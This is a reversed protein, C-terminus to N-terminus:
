ELVATSTVVADIIGFTVAEDTTMYTNRDLAAHVVAPDQGSHACLLASLVDRTREAKKAAIVIDSTQGSIVHHPQHIMIRAHPTAFRKGPAGASLLVAAMSEAHGVCVTTVPSKVLQMADYIALGASVNGGGSNIFMVIPQSSSSSSVAAADLHLLQGVLRHASADDIRGTLFVRRRTLLHSYFM